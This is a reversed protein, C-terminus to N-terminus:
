HRALSDLGFLASLLEAKHQMNTGPAKLQVTPHHLIQNVLSHSLQEFQKFPCKSPTSSAKAKDVHEQRISEIKSRLQTITPVVHLTQQWNIFEDLTEFVVKEAESVLSQRESLNTRVIEALHDSHFLQVGPLDGIAPDVNRPVSIDVITLPKANGRRAKELEECSLTFSEAATSV